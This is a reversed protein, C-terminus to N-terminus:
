NELKEEVRVRASNQQLPEAVVARHSWSKALTKRAPFNSEKTRIQTTGSSCQIPSSGTADNGTSSTKRETTVFVIVWLVSVGGSLIHARAFNLKGGFCGRSPKLNGRNQQCLYGRPYGQVHLRPSDISGEQLTVRGGHLCVRLCCLVVAGSCCNKAYTDSVQILM